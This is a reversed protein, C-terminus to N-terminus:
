GHRREDGHTDQANRKVDHQQYDARRRYQEIPGAGVMLQQLFARAMQALAQEMPAVEAETMLGAVPYLVAIAFNNLRVQTNM